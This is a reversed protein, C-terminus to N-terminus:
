LNWRGFPRQVVMPTQCNACVAWSPVLKLAGLVWRLVRGRWGSVARVVCDNCYHRHRMFEGGCGDCRPPLVTAKLGIEIMPRGNPGIM